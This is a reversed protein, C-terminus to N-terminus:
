EKLAAQLATISSVHTGDLVIQPVSRVVVGLEEFLQDISLDTGVVREEVCVNNAELLAKAQVCQPCMPKSYVVAQRSCESM